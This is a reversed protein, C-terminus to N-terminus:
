RLKNINTLSAALRQMATKVLEVTGAKKTLEAMRTAGCEREREFCLRVWRPEIDRLQAYIHLLRM